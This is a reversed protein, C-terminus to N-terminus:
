NDTEFAKLTTYEGGTKGSGTTGLVMYPTLPWSVPTISEVDIMENKGICMKAFEPLIHQVVDDWYRLPPTEVILSAARIKKDLFVGGDKGADYFSVRVFYSFKEPASLTM